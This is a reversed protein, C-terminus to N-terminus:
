NKHVGQFTGWVRHREEVLGSNVKGATVHSKLLFESKNEAKTLGKEHRIPSGTEKM